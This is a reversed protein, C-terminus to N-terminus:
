INPMEFPYIGFETTLVEYVKHTPLGMVNFYSGSIKTSKSLGIWEQIGYAGAKDFPQYKEIYFDRENSTIEAFTVETSESFSLKKEQDSICIGTIVQHSRGSLLDLMSRADQKNEPKNLVHNDSVVTTDSTMIVASLEMKRYNENKQVALYEAVEKPKMSSPFSEEFELTMVEFQFGLQRLLEQRRPSGSALILPRTSNM